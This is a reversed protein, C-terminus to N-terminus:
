DKGFKICIAHQGYIKQGDNITQNVVFGSFAPYLPISHGLLFGETYNTNFALVAKSHAKTSSTTGNPMEDSWAITQLGHTNIQTLTLNLPAAESDAPDSSLVFSPAAFTSDFYGFGSGMKKPYILQIWWAVERGGLGVCGRCQSLTSTLILALIIYNAALRM